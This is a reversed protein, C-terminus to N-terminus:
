LSLITDTLSEDHELYLKKRLRYRHNEVGRVSIGLLPAIEKSSLNMRLYACLRLDSSTLEPYAEKIKTFFQEHAREFNTEFIQWDDQNSINKDIKDNLYNYYKDPYRSGLETKQNNIIDKLELLFENKKIISMTSNALEKSKHEVENRLKENRVRILEKEREEHQLKERKQTQRIGWMRFLFLLVVLVIFYIIIALDSAYWPPLVVFSFEFIRSENEWLDVAKVQLTYEGKALREFWLEPSDIKESWNSNLGKLNYQYSVPIENIRPFSFRFHINHYNNKINLHNSILPLSEKKGRDTSLDIQRIVPKFKHIIETSDNIDADLRAIGNQLCLIATKETLPLINEYKDVMPHEDFLSTPYEKILKVEDPLIYFLGVYDKSIFWYHHNPAEVIRHATSYKGIATNLSEYRIISDHLDDYTYILENTTFVIRNEVKFVHISHDKGFVNEGYYTTDLVTQRKDDTVIKYVGRHMHSAWINGIHDIEIYRILDAFGEILGNYEYTNGAKKYTVLNNYTCQILLNENRNDPKISFGGSQNSIQSANLGNVIFTGQNHGVWLQNNIVKCDWVQAQTKPVLSIENKASNLPKAFLGQNTGLYMRDKLIAVSYIAGTGPMEELTVGPNHNGSIFAIGNDLALWINEWEDTEIGLVTNNPLGNETNVKMLVNGEFDFVVIGDILTGTIIKNDKTVYGRNLENKIFYDTWGDNWQSLKAGDWVYIGNGATGILLQNERFPILFKIQKNKLLDEQIFPTSIDNKIEFIGQDRVAVLIKNNVKNMVNITGPLAIPVITGNHYALIKSFAQFYVYKENVAINWFEINPYFYKKAEPSLSTYQLQGYIDKKWFGLERYGSTYILSDNQAKVARLITEDPLYNINWHTGDFLLLGTHNAFYVEGNSGSSVSWNQRAAHYNMQEFKSVGIYTEKARIEPFFLCLM